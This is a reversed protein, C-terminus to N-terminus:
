WSQKRCDILLEKWHSDCHIGSDLGNDYKRVSIKNCRIYEGERLNYSECIGESPKDEHKLGM